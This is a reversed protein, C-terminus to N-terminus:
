FEQSARQIDQSRGYRVYQKAAAIIAQTLQDEGERQTPRYRQVDRPQNVLRCVHHEAIGPGRSRM